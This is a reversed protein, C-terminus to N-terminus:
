ALYLFKPKLQLLADGREPLTLNLSELIIAKILILLLRM